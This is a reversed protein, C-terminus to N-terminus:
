FERKAQKKLEAPERRLARDAKFFMFNVFQRQTASADARAPQAQPEVTTTMTRAITVGHSGSLPPCAKHASPTSPGRARFGADRQRLLRGNSPASLGRDRAQRRDSPGRG